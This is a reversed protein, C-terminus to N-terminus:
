ETIIRRRGILRNWDFIRPNLYEVAKQLGIALAMVFCCYVMFYFIFPKRFLMFDYYAMFPMHVLYVEFSYNGLFSLFRSKFKTRELAYSLLIICGALYALRLAEILPIPIAGKTASEIWEIGFKYRYIALFALFIVIYVVWYGKSLQKLFIAIPRRMIGCLVGIPFVLPYKTWMGFYALFPVSLIVWCIGCSLILIIFAKISGSVHLLSVLYYIAYLCLIFSIFWDPGNPPDQNIIGIISLGIKLLSHQRKLIVFDLVYFFLLTIWVPLILKKIRKSLFDRRLGTLGYKKALGFGSVFLFIAVAYEGGYELPQIGRVCKIYFHGLILLILAIGRLTKMTDLSMVDPDNRVPTGRKKTIGGVIAIVIILLVWPMVNAISAPELQFGHGSYSAYFHNM